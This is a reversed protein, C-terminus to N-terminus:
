AMERLEQLEARLVTLKPPLEAREMAVIEVPETPWQAFRAALSRAQRALNRARTSARSDLKPGIKSREIAIHDFQGALLEAQERLELYSVSVKPTPTDTDDSM